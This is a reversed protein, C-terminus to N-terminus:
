GASLMPLNGKQPQVQLQVLARSRVSLDSTLPCIAATFVGSVVTRVEAIQGRVESRESGCALLPENDLPRRPRRRANKWRKRRCTKRTLRSAGSIDSRTRSSAQATEM